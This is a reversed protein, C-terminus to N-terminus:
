VDKIKVEKEKLVILLVPNKKLKKKQSTDVQKLAKTSNTPKQNKKKLM